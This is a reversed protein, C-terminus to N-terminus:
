KGIKIDEMFKKYSSIIAILNLVIEKQNDKTLAVTTLSQLLMYMLQNYYNNTNQLDDIINSKLEFQKALENRNTIINNYEKNLKNHKKNICFLKYILYSIICLLFIYVKTHFSLYREPIIFPLFSVFTFIDILSIKDKM